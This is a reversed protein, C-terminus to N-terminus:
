IRFFAIGVRKLSVRRNRTRSAANAYPKKYRNYRTRSSGRSRGSVCFRGPVQPHIDAARRQRYTRSKRLLYLQAVSLRALREDRADRYEHLESCFRRPPRVVCPKTVEDVAALSEIDTRACRNPFHHRRYLRRKVVGGQQYCQILRAVQARSVGDDQRYLM